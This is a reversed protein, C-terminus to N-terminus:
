FIQAVNYVLFRLFDRYRATTVGCRRQSQFRSFRVQSGGFDFENTHIRFRKPVVIFVLKTTGDRDRVFRRQGQVEHSIVASNGIWVARFTGVM